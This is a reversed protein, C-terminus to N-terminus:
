EAGEGMWRSREMVM